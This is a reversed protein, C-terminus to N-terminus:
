SRSIIIMVIAAAASIISIMKRLAPRQKEFAWFYIAVVVFSLQTIPIVSSVTGNKLAELAVFLEASLIVGCIGGTLFNKLTVGQRVKPVLLLIVSVAAATASRVLLLGPSSLGETKAASSNVTNLVAALFCAALSYILQLNMTLAGSKNERMLLISLVCLLIAVSLLWGPKENLFIVSFLVSPILNLRFVTVSLSSSQGLSISLFYFLYTGVALLGTISGIIIENSDPLVPAGENISTFGNIALIAAFSALSSFVYFILISKIDTNRLTKSYLIDNVTILMMATLAFIVAKSM